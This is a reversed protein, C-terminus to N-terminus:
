FRYAARAMGAHAGYDEKWEYDYEATLEWNDTSFYTFGVGGNVTSAQPDFGNTQFAAGGAVFRSTMSVEDDAFDYRYGVSVVPSFYSGDANHFLWSADLGVGLEVIDVSDQNVILSAGGAGTETYSDADYHTWHGLVHPTLTATDYTYDKGFEGRFTFQDADFDGVATAAVVTRRTDVQNFGYAAMGNVYMNNALDHDGYITFQYSDSETNTRAGNDSDAETDAYSFALGLVTNEAINETDMGVAVGFSDFDYGDIGDRRDQDGTAGFGQLWARVGSTVNGTAMGTTEEGTRLSALRDSTISMSTNTFNQAMIVSSGDVTPQAQELANNFAEQSTASQISGVLALFNADTSTQLVPDTLIHNATALNASSTTSTALNNQTITVSAITGNTNVAFDYLFSNDSINASTFTIAQGAAASAFAITGPTIAGSTPNVMFVFSDNTLNFAAAATEWIRGISLVGNTSNAVIQFTGAGADATYATGIIVDVGNNIKMTGDNDLTAVGVDANGTGLDGNFTATAGDQILATALTGLTSSFTVNSAAGGATGVVLNGGTVIGHVTQASTGLLQFTDAANVNIANVYVNGTTTLTNAAAGAVTLTGIPTGNAGLNGVIALTANAQDNFTIDGEGWMQTTINGTYTTTFAGGNAFLLSADNGDIAADELVFNGTITRAAAGTFTVNALENVLSTGTQSINGNISVATAGADFDILGAGNINGVVGGNASVRLTGANALDTTLVGAGVSLTSGSAVSSSIFTLASGTALTSSGNVTLNDLQAAGWIGTVNFTGGGTVIVNNTDNGAGDGTVAGVLTTTGTSSFTVTNTDTGGANGLTMTGFDMNGRFTAASNTGNAAAVSVFGITGAATGVNGNFTVGSANSVYLVGDGDTVATINGALTQATSGGFGLVALGPNNDLLAGATFVNTAGRLEVTSTNSFIGTGGDITLLGTFTSNGTVTVSNTVGGTAWTGGTIQTAGGVSLAGGITLNIDGAANNSESNTITFDHGAATGVTVAGTFTANVAANAGDANTITFDNGLQVSAGSVTLAAASQLLILSGTSADTVAGLTFPGGAGGGDNPNGVVGNAAGDTVTLTFGALAATDGAAAGTGDAPAGNQNADVAWTAAGTLTEPNALAQGPAIFGAVAVIATGALLVKKLNLAM